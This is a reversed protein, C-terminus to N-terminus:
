NEQMMTYYAKPCLKGIKDLIWFGVSKGGEVHAMQMANLRFSTQFVGAQTLLRHVIRRGNESSMLWVFDKDENETAIRGSALRIEDRRDQGELDSPDYNSM